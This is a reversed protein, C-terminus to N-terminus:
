TNIDNGSTFGFVIAYTLFGAFGPSFPELVTAIGCITLVSSYLYLRNVKKLGGLYGIVLRGVTNSIGIASLFMDATHAEFGVSIAQKVIYIYPANFGLSTLFNSAAFFMFVADSFLSFDIFGKLTNKLSKKTGSDNESVEQVTKLEIDKNGVYSIPINESSRVIAMINLASNNSKSRQRSINDNSVFHAINLGQSNLAPTSKTVHTTTCDTEKFLHIFYLESYISKFFLFYIGNQTAVQLYENGNQKNALLLKEARENKNELYKKKKKKELKAIESPEIPVPRILLGCAVNNLLIAAIILFSGSLGFNEIL